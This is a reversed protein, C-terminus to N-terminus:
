TGAAKSAFLWSFQRCAAKDLAVESDTISPEAMALREPLLASADAAWNALATLASISFCTAAPVSNVALTEAIPRTVLRMGGTVQIVTVLAGATQLPQAVRVKGKPIPM